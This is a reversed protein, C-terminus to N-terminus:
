PCSLLIAGRVRVEEGSPVPDPLLTDSDDERTEEITGVPFLIRILCTGGAPPDDPFLMRVNDHLPRFSANNPYFLHSGGATEEAKGRYFRTVPDQDNIVSM